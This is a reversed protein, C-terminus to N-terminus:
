GTYVGQSGEGSAGQSDRGCDATRGEEAQVGAIAWVHSAVVVASLSSVTQIPLAWCAASIRGCLIDRHLMLKMCACPLLEPLVSHEYGCWYILAAFVALATLLFPAGM